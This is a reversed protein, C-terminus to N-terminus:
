RKALTQRILCPACQFAIRNTRTPGPKNREQLLTVRRPLSKTRRLAHDLPSSYRLGREDFYKTWEIVLKIAERLIQRGIRGFVVNPQVCLSQCDDFKGFFLGVINNM